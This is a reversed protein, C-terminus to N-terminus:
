STMADLANLFVWEMTGDGFASDPPVCLQLFSRGNIDKSWPPTCVPVDSEPWSANVRGVVIQSVAQLEGLRVRCM